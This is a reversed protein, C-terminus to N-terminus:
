HPPLHVHGCRDLHHQLERELQESVREAQEPRQNLALHVWGIMTRCLCENDALKTAIGTVDALCDASARHIPQFRAAAEILELRGAILESIIQKKRQLNELVDSPIRRRVEAGRYRTLTHPAAPM